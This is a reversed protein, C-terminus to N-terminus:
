DLGALFSLLGPSPEDRCGALAEPDLVGVRRWAVTDGYAVRVKWVVSTQGGNHLTPPAGPTVDLRFPV